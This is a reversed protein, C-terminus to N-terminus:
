TTTVDCERMLKAAAQVDDWSSTSGLQNAGEKKMLYNYDELPIMVAEFEIKRDHHKYQIICGGDQIEERIEQRKENLDRATFTKM